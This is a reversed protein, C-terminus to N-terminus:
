AGMIPLPTGGTSSCSWPCNVAPSSGTPKVRYRALGASGHGGVVALTAVDEALSRAVAAGLTDIHQESRLARGQEAM